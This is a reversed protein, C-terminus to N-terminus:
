RNCMRPIWKSVDRITISAHSINYCSRPVTNSPQPHQASGNNYKRCSEIYFFSYKPFHIVNPFNYECKKLQLLRLYTRAPPVLKTLSPQAECFNILKECVDEDMEPLLSETYLWHLIPNLLFTSLNFLVGVPTLPSSPPTDMSNIFPFPSRARYPSLPPRRTNCIALNATSSDNQPNSSSMPLLMSEQCFNFINKCEIQSSELHSDSHSTSPFRRLGGGKMRLLGVDIDCFTGPSDKENGNSLCSFSSSFHHVRQAELGTNPNLLQYDCIPQMYVSSLSIDHFKKTQKKGADVIAISIKIPNTNSTNSILRLPQLNQSTSFLTNNTCMSCDFGNLRLISSHLAYELGTGSKVLVDSFYPDLLAEGFSFQNEQGNARDNQLRKCELSYWNECSLILSDTPM